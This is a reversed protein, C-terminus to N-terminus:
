RERGDAAGPGRRQQRHGRCARAARRDRQHRARLVAHDARERVVDGRAWISGSDNELDLVDQVRGSLVARAEARRTDQQRQALTRPLARVQQDLCDVM